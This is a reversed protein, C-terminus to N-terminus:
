RKYMLYTIKKMEFYKKASPVLPQTNLWVRKLCEPKGTSKILLYLHKM